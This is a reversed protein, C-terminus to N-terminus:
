RKEFLRFYILLIGCIFWIISVIPEVSPIWDVMPAINGQNYVILSYFYKIENPFLIIFAILSLSKKNLACVFVMIFMIMIFWTSYSWITTNIYQSNMGFKKFIYDLAIANYIELFLIILASLSYLRWILNIRQRSFHLYRQLLHFFPHLPEEMIM